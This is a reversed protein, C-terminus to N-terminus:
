SIPDIHVYSSFFYLIDSDWATCPVFYALIGGSTFKYWLNGGFVLSCDMKKLYQVSYFKKVVLPENVPLTYVVFIKKYM